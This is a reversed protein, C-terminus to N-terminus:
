NKLQPTTTGIPGVRINSFDVHAKHNNGDRTNAGQAASCPGREAGPGSGNTGDLWSMHGPSADDWVSMVLVMGRELSKGMQKMGGKVHYDNHEDGFVKKTAACM